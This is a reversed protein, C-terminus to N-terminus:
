SSSGEPEPELTVLLQFEHQEALRQTAQQKTEAVDRTYLFGTNAVNQARGLADTIYGMAVPNPQYTSTQSQQSQGKSGGCM